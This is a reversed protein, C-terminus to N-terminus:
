KLYSLRSIAGTFLAECYDNKYKVMVNHVNINIDYDFNYENIFELLITDNIIPIPVKAGRVILHSPPYNYKIFSGEMIEFLVDMDTCVMISNLGINCIQRYFRIKM